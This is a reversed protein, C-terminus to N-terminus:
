AKTQIHTQSHPGSKMLLEIAKRTNNQEDILRETSEDRLDIPVKLIAENNEQYKEILSSVARHHDPHIEGRADLGQLQESVMELYSGVQDAWQPFPPEEYEQSQIFGAQGALVRAFLENRCEMEDLHKLYAGHDERAVDSKLNEEYIM